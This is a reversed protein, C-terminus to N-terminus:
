DQLLTPTHRRKWVVGDLVYHTLQPVALLPTWLASSWPRLLSLEGFLAPQDHFVLGHWLLEELFALSWVVALFFLIGTSRRKLPRLGLSRSQDQQARRRAFGYTLVGYPIGHLTVNTVTFAFDSPIAVIGLYWCCATALILTLPGWQLQGKRARQWQRRLYSLGLLAYLGGLGVTWEQPLGRVFDLPIMWWFPQPLRSHWVALPYLMSLLLLAQEVRREGRPLPSGRRYLALFGLQQRVFHYVAVYALCRWFLHSSWSYILTALAGCALPTLVLLARHRQREEKDLYVRFLTSWVHAVDIGLVLWLFAWPPTDARVIGLAAGVALLLLSLLLSGGFMGLDVRRSFLWPGNAAPSEGAAVPVTPRTTTAARSALRM